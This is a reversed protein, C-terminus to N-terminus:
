TKTAKIIFKGRFTAVGCSILVALVVGLNKVISKTKSRLGWFVSKRISSWVIESYNVESVANCFWLLTRMANLWSFTLIAGCLAVSSKLKRQRRTSVVFCVVLMERKTERPVESFPKMSKNKRIMQWLWTWGANNICLASSQFVLLTFTAPISSDTM